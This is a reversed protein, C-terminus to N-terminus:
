CNERLRIFVSDEIILIFLYTMIQVFRMFFIYSNLSFYSYLGWEVYPNRTVAGNLVESLGIFCNFSGWKWLQPQPFNRRAEYWCNMQANTAWSPSVTMYRGPQQSSTKSCSNQIFNKLKILIECAIYLSSCECGVDSTSGTINSAVCVSVGYNWWLSSYTPSFYVMVNCVSHILLFSYKYCIM